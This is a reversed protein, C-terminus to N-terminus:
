TPHWAAVLIVDGVFDATDVVGGGYDALAFGPLAVAHERRLEALREELGEDGGRAAIWARRFAEPGEGHIGHIAEVALKELAGASDGAELLSKGWYLHLPTEDAGLLSYAAAPLAQEFVAMAEAVRDLHALAWGKFAMAYAVRRRGNRRAEEHTMKPYQAKYAEPTAYALSADAQEIVLVWAEAEAASEMLQYHDTFRFDYERAMADALRALEDLRDTKALFLALVMELDRRNDQETVRGLAKDIAARAEDPRELEEALVRTLESVVGKTHETDPYRDLYGELVAVQEAASELEEYTEELEEIALDAASPREHDTTTDSTSVSETGPPACSPLCVLVLTLLIVPLDRM